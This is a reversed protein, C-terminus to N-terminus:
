ARKVQFKNLKTNFIILQIPKWTSKQVLSSYKWSVLWTFHYNYSINTLLFEWIIQKVWSCCNKLFILWCTASVNCCYLFSYKIIVHNSTTGPLHHTQTSSGTYPKGPQMVCKGIFQLRNTWTFHMCFMVWILLVIM